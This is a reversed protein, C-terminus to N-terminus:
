DSGFSFTLGASYIFASLDIPDFGSGFARRDLDADVYIHKLEVTFAVSDSFPIQIGGNINFGLTKGDSAARRTVVTPTTNRNIVFAGTEEYEWFYLGVGGGVFLIVPRDRGVPLARVNFEVPIMKLRFDREVPGGLPTRVARDRGSTDARYYTASGGLVVYEGLHHDYGATYAFDNLKDTDFTTERRNQEFIDSRGDPSFYSGFIYISDAAIVPVAFLGVILFFFIRKM